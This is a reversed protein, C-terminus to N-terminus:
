LTQPVISAPCCGRVLVRKAKRHGAAPAGSEEQNVTVELNGTKYDTGGMIYFAGM